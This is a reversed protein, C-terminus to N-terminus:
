TLLLAAIWGFWIVLLGYGVALVLALPRRPRGTTGFDGVLLLLSATAGLWGATTWPEGLLMLISLVLGGGMLGSRGWLHTAVLVAIGLLPQAIALIMWIGYDAGPGPWFSAYTVGSLGLLVVDIPQIARLTDQSVDGRGANIGFLVTLWPRGGQRHTALGGIGVLLTVAVLIAAVGGVVHDPMM